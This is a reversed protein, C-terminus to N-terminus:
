TTYFLQEDDEWMKHIQPCEYEKISMNNNLHFSDFTDTNLM